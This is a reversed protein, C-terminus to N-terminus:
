RCMTAAAAIYGCHLWVFMCKNSRKLTITSQECLLLGPMGGLSCWCMQAWSATSLM